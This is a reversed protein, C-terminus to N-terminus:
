NILYILFIYRSVKSITVLIVFKLFNMNLVGSL